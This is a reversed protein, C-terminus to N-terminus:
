KSPEDQPYTWKGSVLETSQKPGRALAMLRQHEEEKIRAAQEKPTRVNAKM